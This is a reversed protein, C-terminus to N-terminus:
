TERLAALAKGHLANCLELGVIYKGRRSELHKVTAAGAFTIRDASIMVHTNLPIQTLVEIRLGTESLNVCKGQTYKTEGSSEWALRVPGMYAVRRHRRGDKRLPNSIRNEVVGTPSESM